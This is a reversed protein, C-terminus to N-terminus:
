LGSLEKPCLAAYGHNLQILDHCSSSFFVIGKRRGRMNVIRTEFATDKNESNWLIHLIM